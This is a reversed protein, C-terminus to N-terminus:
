PSGTAAPAAAGEGPQGVLVTVLREPDIRRQFAARVGEPTVAEVRATYTELYDLPLRYFGIVGLQGLLKRNSDVRLAFGGTLNQKAARLETETPGDRVFRRLTERAVELAERAQENRTQLGLSFPGEVRMPSFGSSVSYSLGRKERVENALLSVLGGGGLAHNGVALPFFDPDQRAMGTTGVVVHTQASPYELVRTVADRPPSPRPIAPAPEGGALGAVLSEALRGAAARDLDGVIAVVANRAVYYRAYFAHLEERTLSPVSELTGDPPTAYPHAGYLSRFFERSALDDPAQEVQQLATITQRRVRELADPPFDPRTLVRAFLELAPALVAPESLTRLELTAMDRASDVGFEAGLEAFRQAIGDASLGGAGETLMSSTLRALGPRGGDRASAADFVVSVDVIPLERAEIFLVRAGNATEWSVIPPIAHAPLALLALLLIPLRAVM